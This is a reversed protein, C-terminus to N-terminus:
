RNNFHEAMFGFAIDYWKSKSINDKFVEKPLKFGHCEEYKILLNEVFADCSVYLDSEHSDISEKSVGNELLFQALSKSQANIPKDRWKIYDREAIQGIAGLGEYIILGNCEFDTGIQSYDVYGMDMINQNMGKIIGIKAIAEGLEETNKVGPIYIYEGRRWMENAFELDGEGHIYLALFEKPQQLVYNLELVNAYEGIYLSELYSVEKSYDAVILEGYKKNLNNMVEQLKSEEMPLSIWEGNVANICNGLFLGLKKENLKKM